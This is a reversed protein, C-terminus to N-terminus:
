MYRRPDTVVHGSIDHRGCGSAQALVERGRNMLEENIVVHPFRTSLAEKRGTERKRLVVTRRLFPAKLDDTETERSRSSSAHCLRSLQTSRM